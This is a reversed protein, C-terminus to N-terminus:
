QAGPLWVIKRGALEKRCFLVERLVLGHCVSSGYRLARLVQAASVSHVRLVGM